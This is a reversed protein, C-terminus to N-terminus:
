YTRKYKFVCTMENTLSLDQYVAPIDERQVWCAVSLENEDVTIERSGDVDAFFGMLLTDSFPWPQSKYFELNNVRIGTEEFVERAVTEEITEGVEAFGAVLAYGPANGRGAYKTMLLKDGDRVAVIVAPCIKPFVMNGCDDCRMMREKEDHRMPKGCRGCFQNASYWDTFQFATIGAYAHEKPNMTRFAPKGKYTFGPLSFDKEKDAYFFKTTNISFLYRLSSIKDKVDGYKPFSIFAGDEGVLMQNGSRFIILSNDDVQADPKYVVDYFNPKIDQIM